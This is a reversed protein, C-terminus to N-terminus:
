CHRMAKLDQENLTGERGAPTGLLTMLREILEPELGSIEAALERSYSERPAEVIDEAYGFALRGAAAADKIAELPYGRERMRAVVRAQAAAARTWGDRVPVIGEGAWRQLTSAPVGSLESAEGLTIQEPRDAM